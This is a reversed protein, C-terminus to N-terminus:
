NEEKSEEESKEESKEEPEAVPEPNKVKLIEPLKDKSILIRCAIEGAVAVAILAIAVVQSVPIQTGTIYLQDTRIGEIIFRIVGYGAFYWLCMEGNFARKKRFLMLLGFLAFNCVSEYFFTPHVQVFNEGEAVHAMLEPKKDAERIAALPLRMALLNNSYKGFVERNFFNGWRGIAQGLILAPMAADALIFGNLKKRKTFLFATLFAGIVGGYIAIGGEWIKFVDIPSDKYYDWSFIVYYIRAGILGGIIVRIAFDWFDNEKQGFEKSVHSAVILGLVIGLAFTMGYLAITIPGINFSKPVNQLYIGLNPFSIDTANM